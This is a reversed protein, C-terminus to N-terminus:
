FSGSAVEAFEERRTGLLWVEKGAQEELFRVMSVIERGAPGYSRSGLLIEVFKSRHMQRMLESLEAPSSLGATDDMGWLSGTLWWPPIYRGGGHEEITAILLDCVNNLSRTDPAVGITKDFKEPLRFNGSSKWTTECCKELCRSYTDECSREFDRRSAEDTNVSGGRRASAPRPMRLYTAEFETAKLAYYYIFSGIM